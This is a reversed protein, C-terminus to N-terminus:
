YQILARTSSAQKRSLRRPLVLSAGVAEVDLPVLSVKGVAVSHVSLTDNSVSKRNRGPVSDQLLM